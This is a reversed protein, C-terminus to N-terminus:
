GFLVIDEELEKIKVLVVFMFDAKEVNALQYRNILQKCISDLFLEPHNRGDVLVNFYCIAKHEFVYKAAITSKGIGADSIVIFYGKTNTNIFKAM